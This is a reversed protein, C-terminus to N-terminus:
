VVGSRDKRWKTPKEVMFEVWLSKQGLSIECPSWVDIKTGLTHKARGCEDDCDRHFRHEKYAAKFYKINSYMKGSFRAM